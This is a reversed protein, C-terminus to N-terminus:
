GTVIRNGMHPKRNHEMPVLGMDGLTKSINPQLTDTWHLDNYRMRSIVHGTDGIYFKPVYKLKEGWM